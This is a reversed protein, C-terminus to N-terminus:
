HYLPALFRVQIISEIDAMKTIQQITRFIECFDNAKLLEKQKLAFISLGLRFLIKDGDFLFLEMVRVALQM